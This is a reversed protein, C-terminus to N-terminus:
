GLSRGVSNPVLALYPEFVLLGLQASKNALVDIITGFTPPVRPREFAKGELFLVALLLEDRRQLVRLLDLM